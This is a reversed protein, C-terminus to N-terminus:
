NWQKGEEFTVDRSIIVKNSIPNLLRYGKSEESVGLFVCEVSRKDLKSRNVEPVHAHAICGFVRFHAVSPKIGNWAEAPTLDKVMLTPCMNLVYNSWRVAEAWLTKPIEKEFLMTRVMNMLTRNKREAVGNQQPTYATTLQRRIGNIECFNNFDTSTFEGGRDTRLGKISLNKENEVKKKFSKFHSLAESKELLLYVWSKRSFDDIFCLIYRKNGYSVPTIPGCIDAHILGLAQDARWSSRKPIPERHQKGVLCGTCLEDKIEIAPLGQVMGKTQLTRLGKYNLHGYRRHWLQSLNEANSSNSSTHLCSNHDADAAVVLVEDAAVEVQALLIFMRNISMKIQIICGKQPHYVKCVGGKMLIALGKEQFQGVSLLNNKLEPVYYVETVTFSVGNVRLKVNGKGLVRIRTNNGLRVMQRFGDDINSFLTRDGCMHNSCGSDLFWADRRKAKNEEVFAMLLLEDEEDLRAYNVEKSWSPCEYQFHGLRHCRYCEVLSKNFTNRDYNNWNNRGRGRGRYTIRGRGRGRGEDVTMKLLQEESGIKRFKQEHVILTSQLEDVTLKETDKSEEICCVIYNFKETLTRLIKEVIKVDEMEEGYTRMKNAITMVRAFYDTVGEALKMELTEFDRRLAQLHSRKVRANGEFKKKMADWIEKATNKKLITDLVTRDIAQFLYNKVKLDKM